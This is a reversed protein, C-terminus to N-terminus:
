LWRKKRFYALMFIVATLMLILIMPYGWRWELEPMYKFNMGYLGVIFTLPIFITAIVTLVKMIENMKNSISSLYIDFMGSLMDRFVEITEMVQITHDYIDRLYIGTSEKILPTEGRELTGIVERLPWVAKRLFIMARKMKHITQLTKQTPNTVLEDELFEIEDGLKEMIVFYNDVIIDLLAHVLYDAGEKRLRGKGARLRERVPNFIDGEKEQFSLVFNEGLILSVQDTAIEDGSNYYLMKVVIFIFDGLDEAKPRQNTNLIDELILPHLGYYNSLKELIEIQHLGDVNIWTVKSGDKCTLCEEISLAEIEEIELENYSLRTIKTKESKKEGIHVLTGPPLGAKESRKKIIGTM